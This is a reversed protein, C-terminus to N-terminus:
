THLPHLAPPPASNRMFPTLSCRALRMRHYSPNAELNALSAIDWHPCPTYLHSMRARARLFFTIILSVFKTNPLPTYMTFAHLLFSGGREAERITNIHNIFNHLENSGEGGLLFWRTTM